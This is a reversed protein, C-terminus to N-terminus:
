FFQKGQISLSNNMDEHLLWTNPVSVDTSSYKSVKIVQQNQYCYAQKQNRLMTQATKNLSNCNDVRCINYSPFQKNVLEQTLLGM